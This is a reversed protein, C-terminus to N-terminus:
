KLLFKEKFNRLFDKQKDSMITKFSQVYEVSVSNNSHLVSEENEAVDFKTKSRNNIKIKFSGKEVFAFGKLEGNKIFRQTVLNFDKLFASAECFKNKIQCNNILLNKFISSIEIKTRKIPNNSRKKLNKVMFINFNNIIDKFSDSSHFKKHELQIDTKLYRLKLNKESYFGKPINKNRTNMKFNKRKEKLEEITQNLFPLLGLLYFNSFLKDILDYDYSLMECNSLHM